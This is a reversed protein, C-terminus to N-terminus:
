RGTMHNVDKNYAAFMM